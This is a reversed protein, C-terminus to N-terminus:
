WIESLGQVMRVNPVWILQEGTLARKVAVLSDRSRLRALLVQQRATATPLWRAQAALTYWSAPRLGHTTGPAQALLQAARLLPLWSEGGPQHEVAHEM